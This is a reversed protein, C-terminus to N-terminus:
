KILLLGETANSMIYTFNQVPIFTTARGDILSIGETTLITLDPCKNHILATLRNGITLDGIYTHLEGLTPITITIPDFSDVIIFSIFQDMTLITDNTITVIGKSEIFTSKCVVTGFFSNSNQQM